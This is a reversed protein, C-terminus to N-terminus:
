SSDVSDSLSKGWNAVAITGGTPWRRRGLHLWLCVQFTLLTFM